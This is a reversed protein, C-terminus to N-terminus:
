CELNVIREDIWLESYELNGQSAILPDSIKFNIQKSDLFRIFHYM